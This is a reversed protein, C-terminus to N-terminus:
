AVDADCTDEDTGKPAAAGGSWGAVVVAVGVSEDGLM